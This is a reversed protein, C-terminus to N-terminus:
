TCGVGSVWFPAKLKRAPSADTNYGPNDSAYAAEACYGPGTATSRDFWHSMPECTGMPRSGLRVADAPLNPVKTRLIVDRNPGCKWKPKKKAAAKHTTAKTKTPAPLAADSSGGCGAAGLLALVLVGIAASRKM